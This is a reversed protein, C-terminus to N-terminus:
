QPVTWQQRKYTNATYLQVVTKDATSGGKVDLVKSTATNIIHKTTADYSWKQAASGNCTYLQIKNGNVNKGGSNDLCKGLARITGDGFLLWTQKAASGSCTLIQIQTGNAPNADRVDLCKSGLGVVRGQPAVKNGGNIALQRLGQVDFQQVYQGSRSDQYGGNPSCMVPRENSDAGHVCDYDASSLNPHDLGITHALEHAMTNNVLTQTYGSAIGGTSTFYESNIYAAGHTVIYANNYWTYACSFSAKGSGDTVPQGNKCPRYLYSILIDGQTATYGSPVATTTVSFPVNTYMQLQKAVNKTYSALRTSAQSSTFKFTYGQSSLGVPAGNTLKWGTGSSATTAATAKPSAALAVTCLFAFATVIMCLKRVM